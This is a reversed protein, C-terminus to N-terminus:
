NVGLNNLAATVAKFGGKQYVNIKTTDFFNKIKGNQLDEM